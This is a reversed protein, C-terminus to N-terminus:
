VSGCNERKGQPVLCSRAGTDKLFNKKETGCRM